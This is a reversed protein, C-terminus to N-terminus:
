VPSEVDSSLTYKSIIGSVIDCNTVTNTLWIKIKEPGELETTQYVM